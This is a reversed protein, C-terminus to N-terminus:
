GNEIIKAFENPDLSAKGVVVGKVFENKVFASINLADVSAGYLVQSDIFKAQIAKAVLGVSKPDKAQAKPSSTSISDPPEYVIIKVSQPVHSEKNPIFFIPSIDRKLAESVKKELIEETEGFNARRESHGILVYQAFERIQDGNVEGTYPGGGFCSIDQSGIKFPLKYNEILTKVISLQTFSPCIIVEKSDYEFSLNHISEFWEKAQADTKNSKWNAVILTNKM